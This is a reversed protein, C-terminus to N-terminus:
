QADGQYADESVNLLLTNVGAGISIPNALKSVM